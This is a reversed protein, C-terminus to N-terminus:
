HCKEESTVLCNMTLILVYKWFCVSMSTQRCWSHGIPLIGAHRRTQIELQLLHHRFHWTRPLYGQGAHLYWSRQHNCRGAKRSDNNRWLLKKTTIHWIFEVKSM